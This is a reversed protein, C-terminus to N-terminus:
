SSILFFCRNGDSECASEDVLLWLSYHKVTICFVGFRKEVIQNGHQMHDFALFHCNKWSLEDFLYVSLGFMLKLADKGLRLTDDAASHRGLVFFLYSFHYLFPSYSQSNSVSSVIHVHYVSSIDTHSNSSNFSALCCSCGVVDYSLKFYQFSEYNVMSQVVVM